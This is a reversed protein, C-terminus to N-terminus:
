ARSARAHLAAVHAEDHMERFALLGLRDHRLPQDFAHGLPDIAEALHHHRQVLVLGLRRDPKEYAFADLRDGDAEQPREEM